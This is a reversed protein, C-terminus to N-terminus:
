HDVFTGDLVEGGDPVSYAVVWNYEIGGPVTSTHRTAVSTALSRSVVSALVTGIRAKKNIGVVTVVRVTSVVIVLETISGGNERSGDGIENM